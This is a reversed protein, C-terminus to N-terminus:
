GKETPSASCLIRQLVDHLRVPCQGEVPPLEEMTVRLRVPGRARGDRVRTVADVDWREGGPARRFPWVQVIAGRRGEGLDGLSVGSFLGYHWRSELKGMASCKVMSQFLVKGGFAAVDRPRGQGRARQMSSEGGDVVGYLDILTAAHKVAWAMVVSEPTIHRRIRSELASTVSTMGTVRRVDNEVMGNTESHALASNDAAVGPVHAAIERQLAFMAPETDTKLLTKRHGLLELDACVTAVVTPEPEATMAM